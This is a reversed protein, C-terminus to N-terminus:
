VKRRVAKEFMKDVEGRDYRVVHGLAHSAILRKRTWNHVTATTVQLYEAVETVTMWRGSVAAM